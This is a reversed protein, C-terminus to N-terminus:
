QDKGREPVALALLLLFLGGGLFYQYLQTYRKIKDTKYADRNLSAIDNVLAAIENGSVTSQYYAGRHEALKKMTDDNLKSTVFQGNNDKKYEVIQQGTADYVPVLGGKQTGIGITYVKIQEDDISKLRDLSDSDHEEGDSLVIIVNDSSSTRKFSDAALQIASGINTGGGGIMDTDIVDLFMKALQYDDTLPMQIYAASSFPIFGIRDGDLNDIIEEIMKKARSMRNPKIDEVLMSNSTDILVYIDLGTREVEDFGKLTQPGLLSFFVLSLGLILTVMRTHKCKIKINIKLLRMIKEKKRM